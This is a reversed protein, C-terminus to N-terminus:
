DKVPTVAGFAVWDVPTHEGNIVLRQYNEPNATHKHGLLREYERDTWDSYKNHGLKYSSGRISNHAVIEVEKEMFLEMRFVYEEVTGYSKGFRSLYAMFAVDSSSNYQASAAGALALAVFNRM